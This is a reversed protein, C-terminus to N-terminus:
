AWLAGLNQDAVTTNRLRRPQQNKVYHNAIRFRQSLQQCKM